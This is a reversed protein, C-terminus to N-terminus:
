LPFTTGNLYAQRAWLNDRMLSFGPYVFSPDIESRLKLYDYYSAKAYESIPDPEEEAYAVFDDERQELLSM